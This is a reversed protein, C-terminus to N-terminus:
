YGYCSSGLSFLLIKLQKKAELDVTGFKLSGGGVKAGISPLLLISTKFVLGISTAFNILTNFFDDNDWQPTGPLNRPSMEVGIDKENDLINLLKKSIPYKGSIHFIAWIVGIYLLTPGFDLM